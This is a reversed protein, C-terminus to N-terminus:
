IYERALDRWYFTGKESIIEDLMFGALEDQLPAFREEPKTLKNRM